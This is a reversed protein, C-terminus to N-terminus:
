SETRLESDETRLESNETRYRIPLVATVVAGSGDQRNSLFLGFDTGYHKRLITDVNYLGLHGRHSDEDRDSYQGMMEDPLGCGNDTVTIQLLDGSLRKAEVRISGSDAGELGHIIANEVIPQLMMKPVMCDELESPLIVDFDFVNSLRINQIEIYRKLVEAELYLPVFEDPTICFRLIEALNTSMLAVDPVKHIKSIWKMTDLTNCLFHPNLQAQLMRIQAENLERRNEVLQERNRKLAVLMGNFQDSLQGLEDQRAHFVYAELNNKTVEEIAQHLREIPSFLQKSLQINMFISLLIFALASIFSVTYVINMTNRNFVQPRQLVIFLGTSKHYAASYIFNDSSEDLSRNSLVQQRLQSALSAAMAPQTCYVPRWYRNLLLLINQDGYKGDLLFRFNEPNTSILLYGVINNDEGTILVAEQLLPNGTAATDEAVIFVLPDAPPTASHLVGWNTPLFTTVQTANTSYRWKGEADYLDFRAYSRMGETADFLLSYIQVDNDFDEQMASVVAPNEVLAAVRAFGEYLTELSQSVTKLHTQAEAEANTTLRARFIQLLLVSCILLPVLSATLYTAFLRNRFSRSLYNRM